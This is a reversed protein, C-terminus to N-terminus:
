PELVDATEIEYRDNLRRCVAEIVQRYTWGAPINPYGRATLWENIRTRRAVPIVDKLEPWRSNSASTVACIAFVQPLANIALLQASTGTVIYIGFQDNPSRACLVSGFHPLGSFNPTGNTMTTILFAKAM